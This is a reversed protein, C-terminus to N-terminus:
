KMHLHKKEPEVQIRRKRSAVQKQKMSVYLKM